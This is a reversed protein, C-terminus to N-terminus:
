DICRPNLTRIKLATLPLFILAEFQNNTTTQQHKFFESTKSQRVITDVHHFATTRNAARWVFSETKLKLGESKVIFRPSIEASCLWLRAIMSVYHTVMGDIVVLHQHYNTEFELKLALEACLKLHNEIKVIVGILSLLTQENSSGKGSRMSYSNTFSPAMNRKVLKISYITQTEENMLTLINPFSIWSGDLDERYKTRIEDEMELFLKMWFYFSAAFQIGPSDLLFNFEPLRCNQFM